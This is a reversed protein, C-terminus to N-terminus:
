SISSNPNFYPVAKVSFQLSSTTFKKKKKVLVNIEGLYGIQKCLNKPLVYKYSCNNESM